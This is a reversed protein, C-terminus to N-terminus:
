DEDLENFKEKCCGKGIGHHGIIFGAITLAITLTVLACPIIKEKNAMMCCQSDENTKCCM